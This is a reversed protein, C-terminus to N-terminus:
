HLQLEVYMNLINLNKKLLDGRAAKSRNKHNQQRKLFRPTMNHM